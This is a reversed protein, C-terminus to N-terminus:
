LTAVELEWRQAEWALFGRRKPAIEGALRGTAVRRGRGKEGAM